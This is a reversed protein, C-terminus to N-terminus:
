FTEVLNNYKNREGEFLKEYEKKQKDMLQMKTRMDDVQEKLERNDRLLAEYQAVDRM